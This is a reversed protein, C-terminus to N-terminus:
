NAGQFNLRGSGITASRPLLGMLALATLSKGSGSEGVLAVTEGDHVRFSLNRVPESAPFRISLNDVELLSPIQNM